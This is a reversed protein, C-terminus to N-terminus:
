KLLNKQYFAVPDDDDIYKCYNTVRWLALPIPTPDNLYFTGLIPKIAETAEACHYFPMKSFIHHCVHTDTLHHFVTDLFRGYSRDVTSLSGRLWTWEGERFHPVYTDTHQLYTITVLYANMIVYPVIYLRMVMSFGYVFTLYGIIFTVSICAFDSLVVSWRQKPLFFAANPNFHSKARNKYKTPGCANLVLFAQVGLLLAKSIQYLNYLPSDQLTQSWSSELESKAPPVFGMDHEISGTNGHHIRHTLKFSHYPILLVSHLFLGVTDNVLDNDTFASHGCEHGLVWIGFLFSGQLFWYASYGVIQFHFPLSQQELVAVAGVILSSIIVLDSTLYAFSKWMRREFCHPPIATRLEALTFQPRSLPQPPITGEVHQYGANILAEEESYRFVENVSGDHVSGYRPSM